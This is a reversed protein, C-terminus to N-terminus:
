AEVAPLAAIAQELATTSFETDHLKGAHYDLYAQLDFHGHGSLNFLITRSVGEEKCRLAEDIAAKVAHSTEPAPLIGEAHTFQVAAKFCGLQMEARPEILGLQVLHSV